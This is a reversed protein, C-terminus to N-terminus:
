GLSSSRWSLGIGADPSFSNPCLLNDPSIMYAAMEPDPQRGSKEAQEFNSIGALVVFRSFGALAIFLGTMTGLSFLYNMKHDSLGM